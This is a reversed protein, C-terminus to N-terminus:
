RSFRSKAILGNRESDRLDAASAITCTFLSEPRNRDRYSLLSTLTFIFYATALLLTIERGFGAGFPVRVWKTPSCQSAGISESRRIEKFM